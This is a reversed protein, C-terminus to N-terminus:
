SPCVTEDLNKCRFKRISETDTGTCSHWICFKQESCMNEDNLSSCRGDQYGLVSFTMIEEYVLINKFNSYKGELLFNSSSDNPSSIIKINHAEFAKELCQVTKNKEHSNDIQWQSDLSVYWILTDESEDELYKCREKPNCIVSDYQNAHREHILTDCVDESIINNSSTNNCNHFVCLVLIFVSGILRPSYKHNYIRYNTKM